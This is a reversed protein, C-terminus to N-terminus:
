CLPTRSLYVGYDVGRYLTTVPHIVDYLSVCPRVTRVPWPGSLTVLMEPERVRWGDSNRHRMLISFFLLLRDVAVSVQASVLAANVRVGPGDISTCQIRRNRWNM